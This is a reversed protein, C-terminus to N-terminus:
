ASGVTATGSAHASGGHRNENNDGGTNNTCSYDPGNDTFPLETGRGVKISTHLGNVPVGGAISIIINTDRSGVTAVRARRELRSHTATVIVVVTEREWRNGIVVKSSAGSMNAAIM